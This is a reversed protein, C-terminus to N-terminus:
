QLRVGSTKILSARQPTEKRIIEALEAPSNGVVEM